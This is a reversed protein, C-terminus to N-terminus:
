FEKRVGIKVVSTSLEYNRTPATDSPTVALGFTQYEMIDPLSVSAQEVELGVDLFVQDRVNYSATAAFEAMSATANAFPKGAFTGGANYGFTASPAVAGRGEFAWKGTTLALSAGLLPAELYHGNSVNNFSSRRYAARAGLKLATTEGLAFRYKAGGGLETRSYSSSQTESPGNSARMHMLNLGGDFIWASSEGLVGFAAFLPLGTHDANEAQIVTGDARTEADANVPVQIDQFTGFGSGAAATIRFDTPAAQATGAVKRGKRASLTHDHLSLCPVAVALAILSVLRSM